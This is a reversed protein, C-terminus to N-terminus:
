PEGGRDGNGGREEPPVEFAARLAQQARTVRVAAANKSCGMIRAIQDIDLDDWYRFLLIERQDPRVAELARVLKSDSDSSTASFQLPIEVPRQRIRDLLATRRRNGRRVNALVRYATKFVWADAMRADAPVDRIRRWVAMYTESVVDAALDESVRRLVFAYVRNYTRDYLERFRQQDSAALREEGLCASFAFAVTANDGTLLVPIRL